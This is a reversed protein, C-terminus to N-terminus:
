QLIISIRFYKISLSEGEPPDKKIQTNTLTLVYWYVFLFLPHENQHM